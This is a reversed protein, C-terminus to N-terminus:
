DKALSYSRSDMCYLLKEAIGQENFIPLVYNGLGAIEQKGEDSILCYPRTLLYDMLERRSIEAEDDHNGFTIAYPTKYEILLDTIVEWSKLSPYPNGDGTVIDGTLIALDPKETELIFRMNTLVEDSNKGNIYFHTDTFQVIKFTNDEKFRLKNNQASLNCLSLFLVGLFLIITPRVNKKMKSFKPSLINNM